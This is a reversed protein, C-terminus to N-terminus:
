SIEEMCDALFRNLVLLGDRSLAIRDDTIGLMGRKEWARVTKGVCDLIDMGFRERFTERSIGDRLRFGMMIAEEMSETRGIEETEASSEPNTLWAAVDRSNTWRFSRDGRIVTGTAGPGVGVYTSLNWYAGNHRSEFGPRAFNSVEYQRYGAEELRDRGAIWLDASEDEDPLGAGQLGTGRDCSGRERNEHVRRSLPTGEEVTLSYLSVHDPRYSLLEDIDALLTGKDQGPLGSILDVSLRGPWRGALLRLAGLNSERKGRRGVASLQSDRMSQIGVSVRNVGSAACADLWEPTLDEPNAEVTFEAPPSGTSDRIMAALSGIDEPSLLSPTGGGIYATTWGDIGFRRKKGAIERALAEVLPAFRTEGAAGSAYNDAVDPSRLASAREDSVPLSFFDCYDCKKLCVPIHVYLSATM